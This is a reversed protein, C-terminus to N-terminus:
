GDRLRNALDTAFARVQDETGAERSFVVVGVVLNSVRLFIDRNRLYAEDGVGPLPPVDTLLRRLLESAAEPADERRPTAVYYSITIRPYPLYEPHDPPLLVDCNNSEDQETTYATGLLHLSATLTACAPPEARFQGDDSFGGALYAIVGAAALLTPVLTAALIVPIRRRPRRSEPPAPRPAHAPHADQFHPQHPPHM